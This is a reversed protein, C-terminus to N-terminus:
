GRAARRARRDCRGRLGRPHSLLSREVELPSITWGASIIVDDARGGYHFYGDDDVTGLDKAGFWESRRKVSIEGITDPPCREGDADLM